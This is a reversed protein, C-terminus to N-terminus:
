PSVYKHLRVQPQGPIFASRQYMMPGTELSMHLLKQWEAASLLLLARVRDDHAYLVAEATGDDVIVSCYWCYSYCYCPTISFVSCAFM